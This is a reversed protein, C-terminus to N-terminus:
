YPLCGEVKFKGILRYYSPKGKELRNNRDRNVYIEMKKGTKIM